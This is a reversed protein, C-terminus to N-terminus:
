RTLYAAGVVDVIYITVLGSFVGMQLWFNPLDYEQIANYFEGRWTNLLVDIWVQGLTLGIVLGLLLRGIWRDASPSYDPWALRWAEALFALRHRPTADPM